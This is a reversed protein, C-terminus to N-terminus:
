ARRKKKKTGTFFMFYVVVLCIGVTIASDAVNFIYWRWSGCGFDLFDVVQGSLRLRDLLNGFAGGLILGLSLRVRWDRPWQRSSVLILVIATFSLLVLLVQQFPFFSGAMIGFAAGRNGIYTLQFFNPIVTITEGFHMFHRVLFKSAQDVM